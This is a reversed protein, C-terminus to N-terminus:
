VHITIANPLEVSDFASDLSAKLGFLQRTFSHRYQKTLDSKTPMPVSLRPLMADLIAFQDKPVRGETRMIRSAEARGHQQTLSLTWAANQRQNLTGEGAYLLEPTVDFCPNFDVAGFPDFNAGNQFLAWLTRLEVPVRHVSLSREFRVWSSPLATGLDFGRSSTLQANKDYIKIFDNSKSSGFYLTECCGYERRQTEYCSKRNPNWYQATKRKLRVKISERCRDMTTIGMLDATLDVRYVRLDTVSGDIVKVLANIIDDRDM